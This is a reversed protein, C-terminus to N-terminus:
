CRTEKPQGLKCFDDMANAGSTSVDGGWVFHVLDSM